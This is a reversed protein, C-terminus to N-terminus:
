RSDAEDLSPIEPPLCPAAVSPDPVIERWRENTLQALQCARGTPNDAQGLVPQLDWLVVQNDSGIQVATSGDASVTLPVAGHGAIVTTLLAPQARDVLSWLTTTGHTDSVIAFDGTPTLWARHPGVVTSAPVTIGLDTDTRTLDWATIAGNEHTALAVAANASLAVTDVASATNATLHRRDAHQNRLDLTHVTISGDPHGAIVTTGSPAFALTTTPAPYSLTGEAQVLSTISWLTGNVGSVTVAYNGDPALAATDIAATFQGQNYVAPYALAWKTAEGTQSVTVMRTRLRDGGLSATQLRVDITGAPVLV